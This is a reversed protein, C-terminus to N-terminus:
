KRSRASLFVNVCVNGKVSKLRLYLSTADASEQANSVQAMEVSRIDKVSRADKRDFEMCSMLTADASEQISSKQAQRRIPCGTGVQREESDFEM